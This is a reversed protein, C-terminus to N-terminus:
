WEGCMHHLKIMHQIKDEHLSKLSVLLCGKSYYTDVILM